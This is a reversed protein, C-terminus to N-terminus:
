PGYKAPRQIEDSGSHRFRRPKIPQLSLGHRTKDWYFPAIAIDGLARYCALTGLAFYITLTPAWKILWRDKKCATAVASVAINTLEATLYLGTLGALLSPSIREALPHPLGLPIAWLSWLLPAALFLFVTGLFMIQFGLFRKTGLDRWLQVPRRMHVAWTLAYGKLWRTRQRVWAMPQCNAEEYTTTAVLETRWGQRALRIGLDADETVNHADWRGLQELARRRFFLTTGGLPITFGLCALGPLVVRFWGAYDLAFCRSIWNQGPNYFDLRGQLCVVEPPATAFAAAVIRLQDPEPADEADWVGIIDGRTFDLAYNLARPKTKIRGKPVALQRVHRPLELGTLANDTRKDGTETVLLIELHDAPYDVAQLHRVLSETIEAESLLPVLVSITPVRDSIPTSSPIARTARRCVTLAALKLTTMAGLAISAALLLFGSTAIPALILTLGFATAFLLLVVAIDRHRWTRVSLPKPPRAEARQVLWDARQAVLAAEIARPDAIAMAVTGLATELEARHVSFREPRSTAVIVRGRVRRWPVLGLSLCRDAGIRDVLELDLGDGTVPVRRIGKQLALGTALATESVLGESLLIAGLPPGNNNAQLSLADRLAHPALVGMLVLIEGIRQGPYPSTADLVGLGQDFASLCPDSVSRNSMTVRRRPAPM